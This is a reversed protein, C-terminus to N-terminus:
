HLSSAGHRCLTLGRACPTIRHQFFHLDQMVPVHIHACSTGTGGAGENVRNGAVGLLKWPQQSAMLAHRRLACHCLATAENVHSCCCRSRGLTMTWPAAVLAHSFDLWHRWATWCNPKADMPKCISTTRYLLMIFAQWFPPPNSPSAMKRSHSTCNHQKSTGPWLKPIALLFPYSLYTNKLQWHSSWMAMRMERQIMGGDGIRNVGFYASGRIASLPVEQCWASRVDKGNNPYSGLMTVSLMLIVAAQIKMTPPLGLAPHYSSLIGDGSYIHKDNVM